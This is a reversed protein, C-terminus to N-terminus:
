RSLAKGDPTPQWAPYCGLIRMSAVGCGLEELAERTSPDNLSAQLDLYFRYQWPRGALPRSEIKLLNISRRAFVGLATHLAGPAHALEIVLSLHNARPSFEPSPALLLFRTYNEPHDEVHERLIRGGHIEAARRGAIAARTPDGARVIEAVSGGTDLTARRAMEPHARLFRECQALAVPHSEVSAIREITAEPTGILCHVIPIIVEGNAHLGSELLRDLSAVVTGALTNEVPALVLDAAGEDIAAYLAGFTPRPVLEIREGLLLIAAEESFAGREGQFAIRPAAPQGTM